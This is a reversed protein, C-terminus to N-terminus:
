KEPAENVNGLDGAFVDFAAECRVDLSISSVSHSFSWSPLESALKPEPLVVSLSLTLTAVFFKIKLENSCDLFPCEILINPLFYYLKKQRNRRVLFRFLFVILLRHPSNPHYVVRVDVFLRSLSCVFFDILFDNIKFWFLIRLSPSAFHHAVCPESVSVSLPLWHFLSFCSLGANNSWINTEWVAESYRQTSAKVRRTFFLPSSNRCINVETDFYAINAGYVCAYKYAMINNVKGHAIHGMNTM